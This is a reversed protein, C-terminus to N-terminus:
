GSAGHLASALNCEKQWLLFHPNTVNAKLLQEPSQQLSNQLLREAIGIDPAISGYYTVYQGTQLLLTPFNDVEFDGIVDANDEVDIWVFALEPHSASWREFQARFSKCTDCWAACLCAVVQKGQELSLSLPSVLESTFELVPM